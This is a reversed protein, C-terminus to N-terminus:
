SDEERSREGHVSRAVHEDCIPVAIDHRHVSIAGILGNDGRTEVRRISQGHVARPVQENAREIAIHPLHAGVTGVLRGDCRTEQGSAKRDIAFAM